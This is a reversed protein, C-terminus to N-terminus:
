SRNASPWPATPSTHPHAPRHARSCVLSGSAVRTPVFEVIENIAAPPTVARVYEGTWGTGRGNQDLKEVLVSVPRGVFSAAFSSKKVQGLDLLERTRRAKETEEVQGGMAAARTEPRTSYPFVHLNTFPLTSVLRLTEDFAERDEGPFGVMVDTGLGFVGLSNVAYAVLAEYDRPGYKRGM